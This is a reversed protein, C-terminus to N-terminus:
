KYRSPPDHGGFIHRKFMQIVEDEDSDSDNQQQRRPAQQLEPHRNTPQSPPFLVTREAPRSPYPLSKGVPKSPSPPQRRGGSAGGPAEEDESEDDDETETDTEEGCRLAIEDLIMKRHKLKKVGIEKLDDSTLSICDKFTLEEDAFLQKLSELGLCELLDSVEEDLQHHKEAKEKTATKKKKEGRKPAPAPLSPQKEERDLKQQIRSFTELSTKDLNLNQGTVIKFSKVYAKFSDNFWEFTIRLGETDKQNIQYASIMQVYKAIIIIIYSVVGLVCDHGGREQVVQMYEHVREKNFNKRAIAQLEFAYGKFDDLSTQVM